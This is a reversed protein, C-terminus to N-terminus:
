PPCAMWMCNLASLRPTSTTTPVGTADHVVEFAAGQPEVGEVEENEIFGVFHAVHTKDIVNAFDEFGGVRIAAGEEEGSGMGRSTMPMALSNMPSKSVM